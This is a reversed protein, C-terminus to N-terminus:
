DFTYGLLSKFAKYHEPKMRIGKEICDAYERALFIRSCKYYIPMSPIDKEDEIFSLCKGKNKVSHSRELIDEM